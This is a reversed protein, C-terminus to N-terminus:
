CAYPDLRLLTASTHDLLIQSPQIDVLRCYGSHAANHPVTHVTPSVLVLQWGKEFAFLLAYKISHSISTIFRRNYEISYALNDLMPIQSFLHFLFIFEESTTRKILKCLCTDLMYKWFRNLFMHLYTKMLSEFHAKSSFVCFYIYLMIYIYKKWKILSQMSYSYMSYIIKTWWSKTAVACKLALSECVAKRACSIM